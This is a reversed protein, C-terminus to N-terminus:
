YIDNGYIESRTQVGYDSTKKKKELDYDDLELPDGPPGFEYDDFQFDVDYYWPRGECFVYVNQLDADELKTFDAAHQNRSTAVAYSDIEYWIDLM